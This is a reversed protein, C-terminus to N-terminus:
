GGKGPRASTTAAPGAPAPEGARASAAAPRGRPRRFTLAAAVVATVVPLLWLLAYPGWAPPRALIWLGYLDVYHALIEQESRGEQLMRLIEQRMQAAVVSTSEAVSQGSCVPCTLQRAVAQARAELSAPGTLGSLTRSLGVAALVALMLVVAAAVRTRELARRGPAM